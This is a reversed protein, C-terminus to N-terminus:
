PAAIQMTICHLSGGQHVLVRCDFPLIEREPFLEGLVELARADAPDGYVPVLVAGNIILFNAYGAPLRRGDEDLLPRPMPLPALRYPQGHGDRLARLEDAMAALGPYDPDDPDECQVYAITDPACFRALTDIHGDTDDGSLQGQELWLVRASGLREGLVTEIAARSHGPNRRPDILTRTVALLTGQGDTDIAGGELVLDCGEPVAGAFAGAAALHQTVRDDRAAPYKGGWGNFRFDLWRRAGGTELLTIPGYDRTWTDDHPALWPRLRAPDIRAVRLCDQARARVAEDHCILWVTEYRAITAILATYLAEVAALRNAWDTGAHPWALLVAEQPEWEAPLRRPPHCNAETSM